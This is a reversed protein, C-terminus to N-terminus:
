KEFKLFTQTEKDDKKVEESQFTFYDNRSQSESIKPSTETFKKNFNRTRTGTKHRTITDNEKAPENFVQNTNNIIEFITDDMIKESLKVEDEISGMNKKLLELASEQKPKIEKSLDKSLQKNVVGTKAKGKKAILPKPPVINKLAVTKDVEDLKSENILKSIKIKVNEDKIAQSVTVIGEKLEDFKNSVTEMSYSEFIEEVRFLGELKQCKQKNIYKLCKEKVTAPISLKNIVSELCFSLSSSNEILKHNMDKMDNFKDTLVKIKNNLGTMIKEDQARRKELIKRVTFLSKIKQVVTNYDKPQVDNDENLVEEEALHVENEQSQKDEYLMNARDLKERFVTWTRQIEDELQKIKVGSKTKIDSLRYFYKNQIVHLECYYKEMEVKLMKEVEM